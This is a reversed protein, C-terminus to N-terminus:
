SEPVAALEADTMDHRSLELTVVAGDAVLDELGWSRSVKGEVVLELRAGEDLNGVVGEAEDCDVLALRPRKVNADVEVPVPVAAKWRALQLPTAPTIEDFAGAGYIHVVEGGLMMAVVGGAGVQLEDAEVLSAFDSDPRTVVYVKRESM